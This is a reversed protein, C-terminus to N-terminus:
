RRRNGVMKYRENKQQVLALIEQKLNHMDDWAKASSASRSPDSSWRQWDAKAKEYRRNKREIKECLACKEALPITQYIIKMGCTEGTRYEQQCHQRFNGWKWDNCQYRFNDYYCM